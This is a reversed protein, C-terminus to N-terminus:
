KQGTEVQWGGGLASYLQVVSLLQNLQTQLLTNEAPFLLQQEQLIEYYSANGLRFREFAIKVAEQYADV